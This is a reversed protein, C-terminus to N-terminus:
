YFLHKAQGKLLPRDGDKGRVDVGQGVVSCYVNDRLLRHVPAFCLLIEAQHTCNQTQDATNLM